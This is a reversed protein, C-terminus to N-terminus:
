RDVKVPTLAGSAEVKFVFVGPVVRVFLLTTDGHSLLSTELLTSDPKLIGDQMRDDFVVVDETRALLDAAAVRTRLGGLQGAQWVVAVKGGVDSAHIASTSAPWIDDNHAFLETMQVVDTKCSSADCRTRYVDGKKEDPMDVGTVLAENVRCVLDGGLSDAEVPQTWKGAVL